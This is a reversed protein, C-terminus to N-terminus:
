NSVGMTTDDDSYPWHGQERLSEINGIAIGGELWAIGGNLFKIHVPYRETHLITNLRIHGVHGRRCQVDLIPNQFWGEDNMPNTHHAIMLLSDVADIGEEMCTSCNFAIPMGIKHIESSMLVTPTIGKKKAYEMTIENARINRRRQAEEDRKRFGMEIGNWRKMRENNVSSPM